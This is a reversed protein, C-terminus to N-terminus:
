HRLGHGEVVEKACVKRCEEFVKVQNAVEQLRGLVEKNGRGFGYIVYPIETDACFERVYKQAKRLNHRPVRPFLHHVAQFQLGGHFFDLWTPCDVDMTTRLMRQPFSEHIGLDATSMAFHSLTIQVHLPATIMHSALIFLIRSSTTPVRLYLIQYGFWYWFFFQGALELYRHWWAPGRRPAQTPSLLYTWSLIYLNFRGLTLIPYYLWHQYRIAFRAVSDFTMIRDYYTSRLSSFFRTSIAFFPMHEIDPDHEPSNTVIHHVNHNRKWWGISLGGLFDAIFIGICTDGHFSHTIGMHGADHATFVLQHWFLGLFLGSLLYQSYHIFTMSITFLLTYRVSELLYSTYPCDYLGDAHLLSDLERYKAVIADQSVSSLSPYKSLDSSIEDADRTEFPTKDEIAAEPLSISSASSISTTYIRRKSRSNFDNDVPDFIPSPATSSASSGSSSVDEALKTEDELIEAGNYHGFYGGQIPPVFNTWRGCIRGIVFKQMHAQAELSHLARVESTADRGVLHLIAKDGGPHYPLWADAKIVQGDLILIKRGDSILSEIERRSYIRDKRSTTSAM